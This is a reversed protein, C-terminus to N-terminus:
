SFMVRLGVASWVGAELHNEQHSIEWLPVKLVAQLSRALGLGALFAPMYSDERPRPKASVGIGCIKFDKHTFVAAMLEPLNRTHQYVMVSQQLGCNGEPVKLIQRADALLEGTSKLLCLSTTYCSTDIGLFAENEM